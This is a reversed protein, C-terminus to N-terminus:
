TRPACIKALVDEKEKIRELHPYRLGDHYDVTCHRMFGQNDLDLTIPAKSHKAQMVALYLVDASYKQGNVALLKMDPGVGAKYAASGARCDTVAGSDDLNFGISCMYNQRGAQDATNPKDSFVLRWGAAEVGAMPPLAEKSSLRKELLSKWDYPAVTNLTSYVEASDYGKVAPVGNEGQGHFIHCFDDLSKAGHTLERIKCDVELWVLNMEDYFDTGRRVDYWNGNNGYLIPAMDATDQLSRWRRGTLSLQGLTAAIYEAYRAEDNLGSRTALVLGYYETMGEYVWLGDDKMPLTFGGNILGAPRRYKGNWSHFFEHTLLDPSKKFTDDDALYAAPAHDNSSEHHEVGNYGLTDSLTVLWNYRSYHGIGGGVSREEAVLKKFADIRAQPVELNGPSDAALDLAHEGYPGKAPSLEIRRFYEGTLVPSDNLKTLSVAAYHVAEGDARTAVLSTGVGWNRPKVFTAQVTVDDPSIDRPSLLNTYWNLLALREHSSVGSGYQGQGAPMIYDFSIKLQNVGTPVDLHFGWLDVLDRRWEIEKGEAFVHLNVLNQIPGSVMHEGPIWKAYQLTLPGPHVALEEETHYLRRGADRVDVSLRMTSDAVAISSFVALLGALLARCFM